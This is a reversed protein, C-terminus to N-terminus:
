RLLRDTSKRGSGAESAGDEDEDDEEPSGAYDRSSGNAKSGEEDGKAAPTPPAEEVIDSM